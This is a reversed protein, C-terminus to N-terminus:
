LAADITRARMAGTSGRGVSQERMVQDDLTALFPAVYRQAQRERTGLTMEYTRRFLGSRNQTATTPAFRSM